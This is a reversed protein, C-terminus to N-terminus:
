SASSFLQFWLWCTPWPSVVSSGSLEHSERLSFSAWLYLETISDKDVTHSAQACHEAVIGIVIRTRCTFPSNIQWSIHGGGLVTNVDPLYSFWRSELGNLLDLWHRAFLRTTGSLPLYWFAPGRCTLCTMSLMGQFLAREGAGGGNGAARLHAINSEHM